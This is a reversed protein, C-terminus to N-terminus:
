EGQNTLVKIVENAFDIVCIDRFLFVQGEGYTSLVQKYHMRGRIENELEDARDKKFEELAQGKAAGDLVSQTPNGWRFKLVRYAKSMENVVHDPDLMNKTVFCAIEQAKQTSIQSGEEKAFGSWRGKPATLLERVANRWVLKEDNSNELVFVATQPQDVYHQLEVLRRHAQLERVVGTAKNGNFVPRYLIINPCQGVLTRDRANIQASILSELHALQGSTFRLKSAKDEGLLDAIQEWTEAAEITKIEEDTLFLAPDLPEGIQTDPKSWLVDDVAGFPWRQLLRPLLVKTEELTGNEDARTMVEVFHLRLEDITTPEWVGLKRSLHDALTSVEAAWKKFLQTDGAAAQRRAESIPHSLYVPRVDTEFIRQLLRCRHKTAVTYLPINGFLGALHTSTGAEAQRWILTTVLDRICRQMQEFKDEPFDTHDFIGGPASLWEYIDYVDDMLHVVCKPGIGQIAKADVIPVFETSDPKFYVAHLVLAVHQGGVIIKEIVNCAEQVARDWISKLLPYPLSTVAIIPQNDKLEQQFTPSAKCIPDELAKEVLLDEFDFVEVRKQRKRSRYTNFKQLVRTPKVGSAGTIIVVDGKMAAAKTKKKAKKRKKAKKAMMVQKQIHKINEQSSM